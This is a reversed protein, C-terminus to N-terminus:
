LSGNWQDSMGFVECMLSPFLCCISLLFLPNKVACGMFILNANLLWETILGDGGDV